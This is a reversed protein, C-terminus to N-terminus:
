SLAWLLARTFVTSLRGYFPFKKVLQAFILKELLNM